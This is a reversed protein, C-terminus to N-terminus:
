RTLRDAVFAEGPLLQIELGMRDRGPWLQEACTIELGTLLKVGGCAKGAAAIGALTDHDTLAAIELGQQRAREMVQAPSLTGDSCSSHMHLDVQM